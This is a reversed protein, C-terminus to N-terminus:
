KQPPTLSAKLQKLYERFEAEMQDLTGPLVDADIVELGIRRTAEVRHFGDELFYNMGDFRVRVPPLAGGRQLEGIYENVTEELLNESRQFDLRISSIPLRM